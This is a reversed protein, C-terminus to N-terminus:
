VDFDDFPRRRLLDRSDCAWRAVALEFLLITVVIVVLEM